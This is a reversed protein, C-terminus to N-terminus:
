AAITEPEVSQAQATAPALEAVIASFSTSRWNDIFDDISMTMKQGSQPLTGDNFYVLNNTVDISLLVVPHVVSMQDDPYFVSHIPGKITVIVSNDQALATQLANFAQRGQNSPYFTTTVKVGHNEMLQGADDPSVFNYVNTGLYMKRGPEVTSDTAMAEAVISDATVTEGTLRTIVMAAAMLYSTEIGQAAWYQANAANGYVLPKNSLIRALDIRLDLLSNSFGTIQNQVLVEIKERLDDLRRRVTGLGDTIAKQVEAPTPLAPVRKPAAQKASATPVAAIDGPTAAVPEAGAPPTPRRTNLAIVPATRDTRTSATRTPKPKTSKTASPRGSRGSSSPGTSASSASTSTRGPDDPAATAVAAGAGSALLLGIGVAFGLTTIRGARRTSTVGAGAQM